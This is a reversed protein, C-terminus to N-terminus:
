YIRNRGKWKWLELLGMFVTIDRPDEHMVERAKGGDRDLHLSLRKRSKTDGTMERYARLYAATQLNASAYWPGSKIDVLVEDRRTAGTRDLHGKYKHRQSVVLMERHQVVFESTKLWREYSKCYGVLLPDLRTWDLGSGDGGGDQLETAQHVLTGRTGALELVVPDLWSLDVAQGIITTVRVLDPEVPVSSGVKEV